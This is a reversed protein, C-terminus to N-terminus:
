ILNILFILVTKLSKEACRNFVQTCNPSQTALLHYKKNEKGTCPTLSKLSSFSNIPHCTHHRHYFESGNSLPSPQAIIVVTIEKILTVVFETLWFSLSHNLPWDL